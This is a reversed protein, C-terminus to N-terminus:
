LHIIDEIIEEILEKNKKFEVMEGTSGIKNSQIVYQYIKEYNNMIKTKFQSNIIKDKEIQRFMAYIKYKIEVMFTCIQMKKDKDILIDDSTIYNFNNKLNNLIEYVERKNESINDCNNEKIKNSSSKEDSINKQDIIKNTIINEIDPINLNDISVSDSKNINQNNTNDSINNTNDIIIKNEENNILFNNKINNKQYDNYSIMIDSSNNLDVPEKKEIKVKNNKVIVNGFRNDIPINKKTSKSSNESEIDSLNFKSKNIDNDAFDVLNNYRDFDNDEDNNIDQVKKFIKNKLLSNNDSEDNILTVKNEKSNNYFDKKIEDDLNVSESILQENLKKLNIQRDCIQNIQNQMNLIIDKDILDNNLNFDDNQISIVKKNDEIIFEPQTDTLEYKVNDINIGLHKKTKEIKNITNVIKKNTENNYLKTLKIDNDKLIFPKTQICEQISEQINKQSFNNEILIFIMANISLNVISKVKINCKCNNLHLKKNNTTSLEDCENFFCSENQIFFNLMIQLANNNYKKLMYNSDINMVQIFFNEAKESNFILKEGHYKKFYKRFKDYSSINYKNKIYQEDYIYYNNSLICLKNIYSKYSKFNM